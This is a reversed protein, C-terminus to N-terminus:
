RKGYTGEVGIRVPKFIRIGGRDRELDSPDDLEDVSGLGDDRGNPVDGREVLGAWASLAFGGGGVDLGVGPSSSSSPDEPPCVVGVVVGSASSSDSAPLLLPTRIHM